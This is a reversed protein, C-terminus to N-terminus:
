RSRGIKAVIGLQIVADSPRSVTGGFLDRYKATLNVHIRQSLAHDFGISGNLYESAGLFNLQAASNKTYSASASLSDHESIKYSYTGGALIENQTGSTGTPLSARRATLCFTSRPTSRCLNLNGSLATSNGNISSNVFSAGVAGDMKWYASLTASFSFQPSYVTTDGLATQYQYHSISGQLGLQLHESVRHSFGASGGYGDYDGTAAFQDYRSRVYHASTVLSNRASLVFNVDGNAQLTQLRDRSGYLSLDTGSTVPASPQTPDIAGSILAGQGVISNDYHLALHTKVRQSPTGSYDLGAGFDHSDAYHQFYREYAATGSVVIVSRESTIQVKPAVQIQAYGSGTNSGAVSFPNSSYGANASVDASALVNDSAHALSPMCWFSSLLLIARSSIVAAKM